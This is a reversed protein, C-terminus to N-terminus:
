IDNINDNIALRKTIGLNKILKINNYKLLYPLSIEVSLELFIDDNKNLYYINYANKYLYFKNYSIMYFCTYYVKDEYLSFIMDDNIYNNFDFSKNIYYRGSIKFFRDFKINLQTFIDLFYIIQYGEAISKYKNINTYYHLDKDYLPNIFVDCLEYLKRHMYVFNTEFNSDDILFICANPIYKRISEITEITQKFRTECTYVSRTSIYSFVNTSVIIKSTILIINPYYQQLKRKTTYLIHNFENDNYRDIIYNNNSIKYNLNDFIDNYIINNKSKKNNQFYFIILGIFIFTSIIYIINNKDM